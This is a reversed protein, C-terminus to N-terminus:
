TIQIPSYCIQWVEGPARGGGTEGDRGADAVISAERHVGVIQDREFVVHHGENFAVGHAAQGSEDRFVQWADQPFVFVIGVKLLVLWWILQNFDSLTSDTVPATPLQSLAATHIM